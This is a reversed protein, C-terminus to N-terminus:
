LITDTKKFSTPYCWPQNESKDEDESDIDIDIVVPTKKEVTKTKTETKSRSATASSKSGGFRINIPSPHEATAKKSSTAATSVEKLKSLAAPLKTQRKTITKSSEKLPIGSKKPENATNKPRPIPPM